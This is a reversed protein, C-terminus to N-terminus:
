FFRIEVPMLYCSSKTCSEQENMKDRCWDYLILWELNGHNWSHKSGKLKLTMHWRTSHFQIEPKSSGQQNAMMKFGHQIESGSFRMKHLFKSPTKYLESLIFCGLHSISKSQTYLTIDFDNCKVSFVRSRQWYLPMCVSFLNFLKHLLWIHLNFAKEGYGTLTNTIYKDSFTLEFISERDNGHKVIKWGLPLNCNQVRWFNQRYLLTYTLEM